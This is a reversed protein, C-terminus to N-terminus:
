REEPSHRAFARKNGKVAADVLDVAILIHDKLLTTLEAGAEEGYFPVIAHGIDEQNALLRGAAAQADPAGALAAVIYQRTWAVHDAWLRRLAARLSATDENVVASGTSMM